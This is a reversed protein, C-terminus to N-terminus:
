SDFASRQAHFLISNPKFPYHTKKKTFVQDQVSILEGYSPATFLVEYIKLLKHYDFFVPNEKLLKRRRKKKKDKPQLKVLPTEFIIFVRYM